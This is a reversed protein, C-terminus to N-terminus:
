WCALPCVPHVDHGAPVELVPWTGLQLAARAPLALLMAHQGFQAAPINLAEGPVAHM